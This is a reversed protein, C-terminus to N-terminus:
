NPDVGCPVAPNYCGDLNKFSIGLFYYKRHWTQFGAEDCGGVKKYKGWGFFRWDSGYTTYEPSYEIFDFKDTELYEPFEILNNFILVKETIKEYTTLVDTTRNIDLFYLFENNELKNVIYGRARMDGYVIVESVTVGEGTEPNILDIFNGLSIDTDYFSLAYFYGEDSPTAPRGKLDANEAKVDEQHLHNAEEDSCSYLGTTLLAAGLM